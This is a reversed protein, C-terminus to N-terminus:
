EKKYYSGSDDVKTLFFNHDKCIPCIFIKGKTIKLLIEEISASAIKIFNTAKQCLKLKTNKNRNGLIGIYRIKCYGNPLIHLLFRRIFEKISLTLEKKKGKGNLDKDKNDIYSFTVEDKSVNLIRNNTLGIKHTYRGLYEIVAEPSSFTEKSYSYWKENYMNTKFDYFKSFSKLYKLKEPYYLEKHMKEFYDLFKGRFIKSLVGVPVFYDKKCYVWNNHKDLGGGPVLCHIHPHYGLKQTWTHLILMAGVSAGLHKPDSGLVLLTEKVCKFFLDYLKVENAKVLMKLEDPITFVVHFYQTNILDAKRKNIWKEKEFTQCLPCHRNRCSSYTIEQYGCNNCTVIRRGMKETRCNIIKLIINNQHYSVYNNKKYEDINNRLIENVNM